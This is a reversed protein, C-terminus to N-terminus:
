NKDLNLNDYQKFPDVAKSYLNKLKILNPRKRKYTKKYINKNSLKYIKKLDKDSLIPGMTIYKLSNNVYM